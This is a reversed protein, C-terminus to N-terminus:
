GDIGNPATPSGKSVRVISALLQAVTVAQDTSSAAAM